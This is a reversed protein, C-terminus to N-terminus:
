IGLINSIATDLGSNLSSRVTNDGRAILVAAKIYRVLDLTDHRVTVDVIADPNLYLAMGQSKTANTVDNAFLAPQTSVPDVRGVPEIRIRYGVPM